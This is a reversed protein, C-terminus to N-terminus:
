EAMTVAWVSVMRDLISIHFAVELPGEVVFRLEDTLLEGANLPDTRLKRDIVDAALSVANRDTAGVWLDALDKEATARYVVTWKM